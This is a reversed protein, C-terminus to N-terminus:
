RSPEMFLERLTDPMRELRRAMGDADHPAEVAVRVSGAKDSERMEILECHGDRMKYVHVRSM